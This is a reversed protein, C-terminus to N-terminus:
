LRPDDLVADIGHDALERQLQALEIGSDRAILRAALEADDRTLHHRTDALIMAVNEETAGVGHACVPPTRKGRMQSSRRNWLACPQCEGLCPAARERVGCVDNPTCPHRTERREGYRELMSEGAGPNRATSRCGRRCRTRWGRGAGRAGACPTGPAAARTHPARRRRHCCQHWPPAAPAM